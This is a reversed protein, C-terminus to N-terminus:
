PTARPTRCSTSRATRSSRSSASRWRGPPTGAAVARRAAAARAEAEPDPPGASGGAPRNRAAEAIRTVVYGPCLVSVGVKAGQGALTYYLSESLAVVAHKTVSYPGLTGAVLGALSATNVVHGETGQALMIPLFTRVGHIVGWLNVGLIWEWDALSASTVTRPLSVGANNCLLDVAGFASLTAQALAEVDPARAVDTPVARLTAGAARLMAEARALAPEEVDAVVLRMGAGAAREALAFGIGSAAGTIVAVKGAFERM